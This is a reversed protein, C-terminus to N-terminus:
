ARDQRDEGLRAELVQEVECVLVRVGAPALEEGQEGLDGWAARMRKM